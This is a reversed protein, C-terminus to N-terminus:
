CVFKRESHGHVSPRRRSTTAITTSEEEQLNQLDSLRVLQHDTVHIRENHNTICINPCCGPDKPYFRRIYPFWRGFYRCCCCFVIMGIIFAIVYFLITYWKSSHYFFPKNLNQQLVEDFQELKHKAYRLDDLNIHSVDIPIMEESKLYEENKVCCDDLHINIDPVYNTYNVTKNSTATLVTLPTYLKCKPKLYIIGAEELEVDIIKVNSPDCSLSGIIKKSFIYLWSNTQLPHILEIKASITRTPCDEPVQTTLGNILNTECVPKEATSLILLHECIYDEESIQKCNSLDRLRSYHTKTTSLLLYPYQTDVYSYVTSKEDYRSPLPLLNYLNYMQNEVLPIKIAFILFENNYIVSLKCISFYKHINKYDNLPIPFQRDSNLTVKILENRLNNPTIISPHLINQKAFLISSIIVDYKENLDNITQTLLNVHDTVLQGSILQNVSNTTAKSFKNFKQINSNFKEEQTKFSVISNNYNKIADSIINIQQKMLLQVDHNKEVLMKISESYYEADDADPTGFLWNFVYSGGNFIGRKARHNPFENSVLHSLTDFKSALQPLQIKAFNLSEKCHFSHIEARDLEGCISLTKTFISNIFKLKRQYFSVNTYSLLTLEDINLKVHGLNRYFIGSKNPISTIRYPLEAINSKCLFFLFFPFLLLLNSPIM